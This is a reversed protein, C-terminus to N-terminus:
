CIDYFCYKGLKTVGEPVVYIGSKIELNHTINDDPNDVITSNLEVNKYIENDEKSNFEEYDVLLSSKTYCETKESLICELWGDFGYLNYFTGDMDFYIKKKM